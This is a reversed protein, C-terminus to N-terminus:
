LSSGKSVRQRCQNIWQYAVPFPLTLSPYPVSKVRLFEPDQTFVFRQASM